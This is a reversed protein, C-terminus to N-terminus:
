RGIAKLEAALLRVHDTGVGCCGGVITAGSSIWQRAFHLYAETDLDDRTTSVGENAASQRSQSEFANAYVGIEPVKGAEFTFAERAAEIAM